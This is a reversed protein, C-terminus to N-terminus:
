VITTEITPGFAFVGGISVGLSQIRFVLGIPAGAPVVLTYLVVGQQCSTPVFPPASTLGSDLIIPGGLQLANDIGPIAVCPAPLGVAIAYLSQPAGYHVLTRPQGIGIPGAPFPACTVPGCDQGYIVTLMGGDMTLGVETAQAAVLSTVLTLALLTPLPSRM